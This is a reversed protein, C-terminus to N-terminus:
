RVVRSGRIFRAAMRYDSVHENPAGRLIRGVHGRPILSSLRSYEIFAESAAHASEDARFRTMRPDAFSQVGSGHLYDPHM